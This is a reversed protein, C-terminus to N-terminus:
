TSLNLSCIMLRKELEANIQASLENRSSEDETFKKKAM